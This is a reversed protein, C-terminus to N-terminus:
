WAEKYLSLATEYSVERPNNVLLRTQLQSDKALQPLDGERINVERLKTPLGSLAILDDIWKLFHDASEPLGVSKALAGYLPGAVPQNFRLVSPLMLSNSLGHPIHHIAGLPYALAHVAGVPANAFATGALSAGILIQRRADLDSGDKLVRNFHPGILHLATKAYLDSLLNKKIKSTFAEIAHVMADLATYATISPPLGLTLEADLIAMDAYLVPSVVGMKSQEGTTVIAIPTAESGSGATTPIQILPLRKETIKDLGYFSALPHQAHCLVAVLKAVDISSGGGLGIILDARCAQAKRTAKEIVQEAPDPKVESFFSVQYGNTILDKSLRDGYGLDMLGQDTVILISRCSFRKHILSALRATIGDEVITEKLSSFTMEYM